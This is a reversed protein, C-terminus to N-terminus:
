YNFITCGEPDVEISELKVDFKGGTSNNTGLSIKKSSLSYACLDPRLVCGFTDLLFNYGYGALDCDLSFDKLLNAQLLDAIIRLVQNHRWTYRDQSLEVSCHNLVHMLTQKTNCLSCKNTVSKNWRYLNAIHPLMDVLPDMQFYIGSLANGSGVM